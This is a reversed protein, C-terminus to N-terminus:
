APRLSVRRFCNKKKQIQARNKEYNRRRMRKQEQEQRKVEMQRQKLQQNLEAIQRRLEQQKKQKEEENLERSASLEKLRNKAGAIRDQFERSESDMAQNGAATEETKTYMKSVNYIKM